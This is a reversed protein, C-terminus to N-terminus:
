FRCLAKTETLEPYADIEVAVVTGAQSLVDRVVTELESVDDPLQLIISESIGPQVTDATRRYSPVYIREVRGAKAAESIDKDGTVVLKPDSSLLQEVLERRKKSEYGRMLEITADFLEQPSHNEFNGDVSQEVLYEYKLNPRLNGVRSQEGVVLLPRDHDTMYEDVADALKNLYMAIDHDVADAPSHGHFRNDGGSGRPAAKHQLEPKYEDRASTEDFSAPLNADEIVDFTGHKSKLLRPKTLNVDLVYFEAIISHMIFLPSIVFRNKVYTAETIEYPLHFHEYGDSSAFIALGRDQHKWFETDEVLEYLSKVVDGLEREDYASNNKSEKLANKLRTTDQALSQSTSSPHTPLYISLATGTVDKNLLQQLHKTSLNM